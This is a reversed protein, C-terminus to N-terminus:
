FREFTQKNKLDYNTNSGSKIFDPDEKTTLYHSIVEDWNKQLELIANNQTNRFEIYLDAIEQKALGNSFPRYIAKRQYTDAFLSHDYFHAYHKRALKIFYRPLPMKRGNFPIYGLKLIQSYHKDFYAKGLGSHKSDSKKSTGAHGNKFDKECYQAQYMASAESVDGITSFGHTWLGDLISSTYLPIGNSKSYMTRDKFQHNFVILHWHKKGNKGYEHVNFIEIKQYYYNRKKRTKIDSYFARYTNRLKKKFKQIDPYEFVNHYNDKKEDYTLTLFCNHRYLSAHLVCRAALEYARKKRCHLCQGCNFVLHGQHKLIFLDTALSFHRYQKNGKPDTYCLVPDYCKM